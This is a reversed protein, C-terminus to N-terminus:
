DEDSDSSVDEGERRELARKESSRKAAKNAGMLVPSPGRGPDRGAQAQEAGRQAEPEPPREM